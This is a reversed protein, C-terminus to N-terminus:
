QPRRNTTARRVSYTHSRVPVEATTAEAVANPEIVHSAGFPVPTM